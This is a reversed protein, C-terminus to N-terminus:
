RYMRGAKHGQFPKLHSHNEVGGYVQQAQQVQQGQAPPLAMMNQHDM